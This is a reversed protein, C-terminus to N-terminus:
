MQETYTAIDPITASVGYSYKTEAIEKISIGNATATEDVIVSKPLYNDFLITATGTISTKIGNAESKIKMDMNISLNGDGTSDYWSTIKISANPNKEELSETITKEADSLAGLKIAQSIYSVIEANIDQFGAAPVKIYTKTINDASYVYGDALFVIQDSIVEDTTSSMTAKLSTAHNVTDFIQVQNVKTTASGITSNMTMEVTQEAMLSTPMVFADSSQYENISNAVETAKKKGIGKEPSCAALIIAPLLALIKLQKTMHKDGEFRPSNYILNEFLFPSNIEKTKMM